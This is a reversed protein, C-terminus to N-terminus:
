LRICDFSTAAHCQYWEEQAIEDSDHEQGVDLVDDLEAREANNEAQEGQSSGDSTEGVVKGLLELRKQARSEFYKDKDYM